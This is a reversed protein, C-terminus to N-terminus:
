GGLPLQGTGGAAPGPAAAFDAVTGPAVAALAVAGLAALERCRTALEGASRPRHAPNKSMCWSVLERVAPPVAPPLPPPEEGAHALAVTVPSDGNFPRHGALSEYTVVGLAYIDSAPTAPQGGVIEPALYHATGVVMGAGTLPVADRARAIGFDTVKVRGDPTILLNGPKVDRHVIGVRHAADLAAATQATIDLTREPALPGEHALLASLPEGPVLELVLYALKPAVAAVPDQEGYDYVQAIGPHTLTATSRAEARFRAIFTPDDAYEPKLVKVAVERDLVEDTARWVEGMGGTALHGTLVYRGAVRDGSNM